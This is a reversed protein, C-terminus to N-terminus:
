DSKIVDDELPLNAAKAFDKDRKKSMAWIVIGIFFVLTGITSVASWFGTM